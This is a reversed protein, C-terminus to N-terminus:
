KMKRRIRHALRMIDAQTVGKRLQGNQKRLRRNAEELAKSQMKDTKTKKRTRQRAAKSVLVDRGVQGSFDIPIQGSDTRIPTSGNGTRVIKVNDDNIMQLEESAMKINPDNVLIEFADRAAEMRETTSTEDELRNLPDIDILKKAVAKAPRELLTLARIPAPIFRRIPTPIKPILPLDDIREKAEKKTRKRAM